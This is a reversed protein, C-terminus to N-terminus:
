SRGSWGAMQGRSSSRRSAGVAGPSMGHVAEKSRDAGGGQRRHNWDARRRLRVLQPVCLEPVLHRVEPQRRHGAFGDAAGVEFALGDDEHEQRGLLAAGFRGGGASKGDVASEMVVVQREYEDRRVRRVRGIEALQPVLGVLVLRQPEVELSREIALESQDDQGGRDQDVLLPLEGVDDRRVPGVVLVDQPGIGLVREPQDVVILKLPLQLRLGEAPVPGRVPNGTM